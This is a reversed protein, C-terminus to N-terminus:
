ADALSENGLARAQGGGGGGDADVGDRKAAKIADRAEAQEAKKRDLDSAFDQEEAPGSGPVQQTGSKRDVADAVKGEGLTAMQEANVSDNELRGQSDGVHTAQAEQDDVPGSGHVGHGRSTPIGDQSQSQEASATTGPTSRSGQGHLKETVEQELPNRTAPNGPQLYPEVNSPQNGAM